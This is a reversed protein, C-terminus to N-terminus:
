PAPTPSCGASNAPAPTTLRQARYSDALNACTANYREYAAKTAESRKGKAEDAIRQRAAKIERRCEAMAAKSGRVLANHAALDQARTARWRAETAAHDRAWEDDRMASM